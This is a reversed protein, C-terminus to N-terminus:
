YARLILAASRCRLSAAIRRVQPFVDHGIRFKLTQAVADVIDIGRQHMQEGLPEFARLGDPSVLGSVTKRWGVRRAFRLLDGAQAREGPVGLEIGVERLFEQREDHLLDDAVVLGDTASSDFLAALAETRIASELHRPLLFKLACERMLVGAPQIRCLSAIARRNRAIGTERRRMVIKSRDELQAATEPLRDVGEPLGGFQIGIQIGGCVHADTNDQGPHSIELARFFFQARGHGHSRL